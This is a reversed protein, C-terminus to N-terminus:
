LLNADGKTTVTKPEYDTISVVRHIIERNHDSPRDFVISDGVEVNEFTINRDIRVHDYVDLASRM